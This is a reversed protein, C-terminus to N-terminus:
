KKIKKIKSIKNLKEHKGFFIYWGKKIPWEKYYTQHPNSPLRPDEKYRKLYESHSTINLRVTAQQAEAFTSYFNKSIKGFFEYWGNKAPWEKPYMKNPNSPLKPDERYREQYELQSSIKLLATARKAETLTYYFIKPTKGFFYSWGRKTPWEKSYTADPTSPLRSDEKYRQKYEPISNIGLLTTAQKAEAM